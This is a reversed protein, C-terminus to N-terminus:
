KILCDNGLMRFNSKYRLAKIRCVFELLKDSYKDSSKPLNPNFNTLKITQTKSDKLISIEFTIVHDITPSDSEYSEKESIIETDDLFTKLDNLQKESLQYKHLVLNRKGDKIVDEEYEALGDDSVRLFLYKGSVAVMGFGSENVELIRKASSKQANCISFCFFVFVLVFLYKKMFLKVGIWFLQKCTLVM